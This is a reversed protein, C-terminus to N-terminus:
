MQSALQKVSANDTELAADLARKHNYPLASENWRELKAQSLEVFDDVGVIMPATIMRRYQSMVSTFYTGTITDCNSVIM